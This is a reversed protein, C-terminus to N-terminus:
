REEVVDVMTRFLVFRGTALPGSAFWIPSFHSSYSGAGPDRVTGYRSPAM